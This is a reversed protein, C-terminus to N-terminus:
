CRLKLLKGIIYLVGCHFTNQGRCDFESTELTEASEWTGMGPTHTEDECEEEFYPQSLNARHIPSFAKPWKIVLKVHNTSAHM